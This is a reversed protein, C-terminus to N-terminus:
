AFGLLTEVFYGFKKILKIDEDGGTNTRFKKQPM